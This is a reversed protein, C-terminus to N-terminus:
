IGIKLRGKKLLKIAAPEELDVIAMQEQGDGVRFIEIMPTVTDGVDRKIALSVEAKDVVEILNRVELTLRATLGRVQYGVGLTQQVAQFCAGEETRRGLQLVAGGDKAKRISRVAVQPNDALKTNLQRLM